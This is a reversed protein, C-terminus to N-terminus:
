PKTQGLLKKYFDALNTDKITELSAVKFIESLAALIDATLAKQTEPRYSSLNKDTNYITILMLLNACTGITLGTKEASEKLAMYVGPGVRINTNTVTSM